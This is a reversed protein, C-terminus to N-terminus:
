FLLHFAIGAAFATLTVLGPFGNAIHTRSSQLSHVQVPL